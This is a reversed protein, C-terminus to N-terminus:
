FFITVVTIDDIVVDEKQWFKVSNDILEKCFGRPNNELYYQKGCEMVDKNNLFEWVGDSCIVIFKSFVNLDWEIIEPDPIVGINKGNFDGLSRSMALGPYDKDKEWVRFPGVGQGFKNKIKEVIGGMKLIREKEGIKEPKCDFSLPFVKSFKLDKNNEEDFVLIARSDGANACIIHEGIHIVLVCTTGSNKSDIDEYRLSNDANLFIDKIISFDKSILKEYIIDLNKIRQLGPHTQFQIQIFKSVFQSVLHGEPGHGDLVAFIDFDKISNISTLAIYTDQNTKSNGIEDKGARSLAYHCKFSKIKLKEDFLIKSPFPEIKINDDNNDKNTENSSIKGSKITKYKITVKKKSSDKPSQSKKSESHESDKPEKKKDSPSKTIIKEKESDKPNKISSVNKIEEDEKKIIIEKEKYEKYEKNEKNEKKENKKEELTEGKNIDEIFKKSEKEEVEKKSNDENNLSQILNKNSPFTLRMSISNKTENKNENIGVHNNEKILKNISKNENDHISDNNIINVNNINKNKLNVKKNLKVKFEKKKSLYTIKKEESKENKLKKNINNDSCGLNDSKLLIKKNKNVNTKCKNIGNKNKIKLVKIITESKLNIKQNNNDSINDKKYEKKTEITNWSNIENEKFELNFKKKIILGDTIEASKKIDIENKDLKIKKKRKSLFNKEKNNQITKLNKKIVKKEKLNLNAGIKEESKEKKTTISLNENNENRKKLKIIKNKKHENTKQPNNNPETNIKRNQLNNNTNLFANKIKITNKLKELKFPNKIKNKSKKFNEIKQSQILNNKNLSEKQSKNSNNSAKTPLVVIKNKNNQDNRKKNYRKRPNMSDGVLFFRKNLNKNKHDITKSIIKDFLIEKDKPNSVEKQFFNPANKLVRPLNAHESLDDIFIFEEKSM